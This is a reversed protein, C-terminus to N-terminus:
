PKEIKLYLKLRDMRGFPFGKIEALEEFSTIGERTIRYNVIRRALEYKIYPVELLDVVEAKNLDIKDFERPTKVTFKETLATRVEYKLGYIDKLQLDEIFGGIQARYLVIRKSLVEGIGKVAQLEEQTATNLDMKERKTVPHQTTNKIKKERENRAIVWDPFKFLPSIEKLLSDSIKTVTQFDAPSNIWQDKQRFAKLRDFEKTTMGLTYAKYDTVFNPNFPYIKRKKSIASDSKKISDMFNRVAIEEETDAFFKAKEEHQKKLYHTFFGVALILLTFGLVGIRQLTSFAFRSRM